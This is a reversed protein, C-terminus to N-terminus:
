AEVPPDGRRDRISKAPIGAAIHFPAIEGIVVAGAGIIADRGVRSGDTIVVHAGLWVNDDVEIGRAARGQRLVPIDTRDFLHDGGVLYTYAAVLAYRGLRVRSGSFIECNFGINAHDDIIIDGNKCSLITNRGVFVGDGITIGENATGKADLCCGDDIVVDDGIRIKHPHRLVVNVGFTVNRGVRGLLLPYLKSRLLLGLAGPLWASLTVILEYKVLAWLSTRGIVLAAYRSAKSRGLAFLEEQIVTINPDHERPPRNRPTDEAPM